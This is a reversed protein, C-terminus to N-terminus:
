KAGDKEAPEDDPPDYHPKQPHVTGDHRCGDGFNEKPSSAWWPRCMSCFPGCGYTAGERRAPFTDEVPVKEGCCQCWTSGMSERCRSHNADHTRM